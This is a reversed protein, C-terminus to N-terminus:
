FFYPPIINNRLHIDHTDRCVALADKRTHWNEAGNKLAIEENIEPFCKDCMDKNCDYCYYYSRYIRGPCYDCGVGSYDYTGNLTLVRQDDQLLGRFYKMIKADSLRKLGNIEPTSIPKELIEPKYISGTVMAQYTERPHVDNLPGLDFTPAQQDSGM